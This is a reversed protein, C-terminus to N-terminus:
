QILEFSYSLFIMIPIDTGAQTNKLIVDIDVVESEEKETSDFVVELKGGDGPKIPGRPYEITTCECSSVLEIEIDEDGTNTFPFIMEKKDGRVVEGLAIQMTDFTMLDKEKVVEAAVEKVLSEQGLLNGFFFALIGIAFLKKM